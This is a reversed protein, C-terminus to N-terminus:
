EIWWYVDDFDYTWPISSTTQTAGWHMNRIGDATALNDIDDVNCWVKEGLPPTIGCASISVDIMKTGNIWMRAIADRAGLSSNPKYQYTFRHWQYDNLEDFYPGVPQTGQSATQGQDYVMWYPYHARPDFGWAWHGIRIGSCVPVMM